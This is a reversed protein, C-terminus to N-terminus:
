EIWILKEGWRNALTDMSTGHTIGLMFGGGSGNLKLYYENSVQGEIWLDLAHSPIMKRFHTFQYDSLVRVLLAPDAERVGTLAEILKQNVPLYESKISAAFDPNQMSELFHKVLPGTDFREGSDLLFFHYNGPFSAPDIEVTQITGDTHFYLPVDAYCTLADVGSSQGHFYSEINALDEKKHILSQSEAGSFFLDYVAASVAGSSGLGYGIPISMDLWHNEVQALFQDLDPVANFSGEPKSKIYNLLAKLHHVSQRAEQEKGSPVDHISRVRANFKRFPITLASGGAVVGYEGVLMVKSPYFRKKRM